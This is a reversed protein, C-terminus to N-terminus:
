SKMQSTGPWASAPMTPVRITLYALRATRRRRLGSRRRGATSRLREGNEGYRRPAPRDPDGILVVVMGLHLPLSGVINSWRRHGITNHSSGACVAAVIARSRPAHDLESVLTRDLKILHMPSRLPYGLSTVQTGFDDIALRVGLARLASVTRNTAESADILGQEAIELVLRQPPFGTAGLIRAVQGVPEPNRIQIPSVNVNLDLRAATAFEADWAVV